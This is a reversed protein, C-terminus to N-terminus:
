GSMYLQKQYILDHLEKMPSINKMNLTQQAQPVEMEKNHVVMEMEKNQVEMQEEESIDVHVRLKDTVGSIIVEETDVICQQDSLDRREDEIDETSPMVDEVM